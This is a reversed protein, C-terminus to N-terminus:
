GELQTKIRSFIRDTRGCTECLIRNATSNIEGAVSRNKMSRTNIFINLSAAKIAGEILAAGAAADSIAMVSGKEAFVEILKSARECEKMIELPVFSADCLATEMIRQKEEKEEETESALSYAAALPAFVEADKDALELLRSATNDAKEKLATIEEEVDAYKKKGITLSAVMSGLSIAVAGCLASAGGGGPTPARSSLEDIFDGVKTKKVAM